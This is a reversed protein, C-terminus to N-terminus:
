KLNKRKLFLYKSHLYTKISSLWGVLQAKDKKVQNKLGFLDDIDDDFDQLIDKLFQKQASMWILQLLEHEEIKKLSVLEMLIAAKGISTADEPNQTYEKLLATIEESDLWKKLDRKM